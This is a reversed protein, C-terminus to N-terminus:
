LLAVQRLQTVCFWTHMFGPISWLTVSAGTLSEVLNAAAYALAVPVALGHSLDVAMEGVIVAAGAVPWWSRRILLLAAVTVGAPPFFAAVTMGAAPFVTHGLDAGLSQWSLEAGGAYAAAILVFLGALRLV